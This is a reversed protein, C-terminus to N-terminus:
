RNEQEDLYLFGNSLGEAYANDAISMSLAQIMKALRRTQFEGLTDSVKALEADLEIRHHNIEEASAFQVDEPMMKNPFLFEPKVNATATDALPKTVSREANGAPTRTLSLQLEQEVMRDIDAASIEPKRNRTPFGIIQADM